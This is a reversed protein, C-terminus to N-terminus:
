ISNYKGKSEMGNKVHTFHHNGHWAYSGITESLNFKKGHEPHIYELSLQEESLGRLLLGWKKHLSKLITISDKINDDQSDPLEAWKDEFYPRIIPNEETLALKFRIVSNMHSDACHHIVQKVTWGEPRYKWNLQKETINKTISELKTPFEEIETIWKELLATNPTKNPTYEGIPFKLAELNM